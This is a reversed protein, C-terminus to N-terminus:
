CAKRLNKMLDEPSTFAVKNPGFPKQPKEAGPKDSLDSFLVYVYPGSNCSNTVEGSVSFYTCSGTFYMHGNVNTIAMATTTTAETKTTPKQSQHLLM